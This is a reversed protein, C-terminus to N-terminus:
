ASATGTASKGVAPKRSSKSKSATRTSGSPKEKGDTLNTQPTVVPKPTHHKIAEFINDVGADILAQADADSINEDILMLGVGPVIKSVSGSKFGSKFKFNKM